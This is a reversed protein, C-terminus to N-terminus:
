FLIVVLNYSLAAVAYSFLKLLSERPFENVSPEEVRWCRVINAPVMTRHSPPATVGYLRCARAGGGGAAAVPACSAGIDRLRGM